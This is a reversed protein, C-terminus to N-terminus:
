FDYNEYFLHSIFTAGKLFSWYPWSRHSVVKADIKTCVVHNTMNATPQHPHYRHNNRYLAGFNDTLHLGKAVRYRVGLGCCCQTFYPACRGYVTARPHVAFCCPRRSKSASTAFPQCFTGGAISSCNITLFFTVGKFKRVAVGGTLIWVCEQAHWRYDLITGVERQDREAGATVWPSTFLPFSPRPAVIGIRSSLVRIILFFEIYQITELSRNQPRCLSVNSASAHGLLTWVNNKIYICIYIRRLCGLASPFHHPSPTARFLHYLVIRVVRVGYVSIVWGGDM